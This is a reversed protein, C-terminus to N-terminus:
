RGTNKKATIISRVKMPTKYVFVMGYWIYIYM